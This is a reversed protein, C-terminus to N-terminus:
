RNKNIYIIELDIYISHMCIHMYIYNFIILEFKNLEYNEFYHCKVTYNQSLLYFVLNFLCITM